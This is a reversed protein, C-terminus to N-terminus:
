FHLIHCNKNIKNKFAFYKQKWQPEFGPGRAHSALTIVVVSHFGRQSVDERLTAKTSRTCALMLSFSRKYITRSDFFMTSRVNDHWLFWEGGWRGVPESQSTIQPPNRSKPELSGFRHLGFWLVQLYCRGFTHPCSSFWNLIKQARKTWKPNPIIHLSPIQWIQIQLNRLDFLDLKSTYFIHPTFTSIDRYRLLCM